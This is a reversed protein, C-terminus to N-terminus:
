RLHLEYHGGLAQYDAWFRPYSKNVCHANLITVPGAAATAAIAAAMAIRHDGFSDVIGGRFQGPYVTLTDETSETSIGLASLMGCITAVRDSEKLRLRSIGTFSAGRNAAAVVALIPVLDPIDTADVVARNTLVPLVSLLAKDAQPSDSNLGRVTVPNNLAKAGLYFAAGSWDGECHVLGPSQYGKCAPDGVGFLALTDRTMQIYPKSAVQGTVHLACNGQILPFAMLLGSIFQSSVNGPLSFSGSTLKGTIRFRDTGIWQFRCGHQQMAQMLPDLPRQALRGSLHFTAEVGLAGVVPMMFRAVAGSEGCHLVAYEPPREIPTVHYGTETRHIGAGLATLCDVAAHIDDCVAGCLIDTPLDALAACILLRQMHSKSAVADICGDLRTPYITINM